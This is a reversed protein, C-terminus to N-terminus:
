IKNSEQTGDLISEVSDLYSYLQDQDAVPEAKLAVVLKDIEDRTKESDKIILSFLNANISSALEKAQEIPASSLTNISTSVQQNIQAYLELTEERSAYHDDFRKVAESLEVSAEIEEFLAEYRLNSFEESLQYSTELLEDHNFDGNFRSQSLLVLLSKDLNQLNRISETTQNFVTQDLKENRTFLLVTLGIGVATLIALIIGYKKM